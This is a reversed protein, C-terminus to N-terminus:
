KDEKMFYEEFTEKVHKKDKYYNIELQYDYNLILKAMLDNTKKLKNIETDQNQILNLLTEKNTAEYESKIDLASLWGFAEKQIETM